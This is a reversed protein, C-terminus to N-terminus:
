VAQFGVGQNTVHCQVFMAVAVAVTASLLPLIAFEWLSQIHGSSTGRWGGVLLLEEEGDM